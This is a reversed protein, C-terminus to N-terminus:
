WPTTVKKKIENQNKMFVLHYYKYVYPPLCTELLRNKERFGGGGGVNVLTIM